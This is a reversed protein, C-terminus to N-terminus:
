IFVGQKIYSIPSTTPKENDIDTIESDELHSVIEDLLLLPCLIQLLSVSKKKNQFVIGALPVHSVYFIGANHSM